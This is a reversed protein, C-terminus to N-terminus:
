SEFYRLTRLQDIVNQMCMRKIVFCKQRFELFGLMTFCEPLSFSNIDQNAKWLELIFLDIIKFQKPELGSATELLM